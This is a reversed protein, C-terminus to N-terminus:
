VDSAILHKCTTHKTCHDLCSTVAPQPSTIPTYPLNSTRLYQDIETWCNLQSEQTFSTMKVRFDLSSGRDSGSLSRARFVACTGNTSEMLIREEGYPTSGTKAAGRQRKSPLATLVVTDLRTEGSWSSNQFKGELDVSRMNMRVQTRPGSSTGPMYRKFVTTTETTDSVVDVKCPYQTNTSLSIGFIITPKGDKTALFESIDPTRSEELTSLDEQVSPRVFGLLLAVVTVMISRCLGM